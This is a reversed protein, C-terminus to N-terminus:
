LAKCRSKGTKSLKLAPNPPFSQLAPLRGCKLPQQLATDEEPQGSVVPAEIEPIAPEDSDDKGDRSPESPKHSPEHDASDNEGSVSPTKESDNSDM